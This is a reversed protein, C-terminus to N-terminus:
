IEVCLDYAYNLFRVCYCYPFTKFEKCVPKIPTKDWMATPYSYTLTCYPLKNKRTQHLPHIIKKGLTTVTGEWNGARARICEGAAYYRSRGPRRQRLPLVQIPLLELARNVFSAWRHALNLLDAVRGTAACGKKRCAPRDGGERSSCEDEGREFPLPVSGHQLEEALLSSERRLLSNISQWATNKLNPGAPVSFKEKHGFDNQGCDWCSVAICWPDRAKTIM